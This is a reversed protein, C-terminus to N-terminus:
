LEWGWASRYITKVPGKTWTRLEWMDKGDTKKATEAMSNFVTATIYTRYSNERLNSLKAAINPARGVFVLDNSSRIGGRVILMESTDVGTSHALDFDTQLQSYKAEFKPKLINQFAWKIKLASKVADTNKTDGVFVAMIRDGDFSRINGGHFRTIRSCIAMFAKCVRAAIRRDFNMALKTSDALDSYLITAKLNVGGGALAVDKTAPVVNGKRIDWSQALIGQIDETVDSKLSM